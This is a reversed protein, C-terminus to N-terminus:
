NREIKEKNVSQMLSMLKWGSYLFQKGENYGKTQQFCKKNNDSSEYLDCSKRNNTYWECPKHDPMIKGPGTLQMLM